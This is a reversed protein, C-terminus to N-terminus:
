IAVSSRLLPTGTRARHGWTSASTHTIVEWDNGVLRGGTGYEIQFGSPTEIYFATMRDNTHTGLSTM